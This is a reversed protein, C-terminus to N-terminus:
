SRGSTVTRAREAPVRPSSSDGPQWRRWAVGEHGFEFTEPHLMEALIELTEVLRPGPRNFYQNGDAVCVADTRVATISDFGPIELLLSAEGLTRDLSFGCPFVAVVDPNAQAVADRALWSSHRGAEGFLNDGGAMTVLEPIWNGAAMPPALWEITAVRPRLLVASADAIATMRASLRATLAAGRRPCGLASAVREMDAFAEPVTSAGLVVLEASSAGSALAARVDGLSVACVECHVQTVVHTPELSHLLEADVRYVSVAEALREEVGAHIERSSGSPDIWSATCVPLDIVEPPYDCEHSRGVLADAFGLSAVIETASPLLSVIRPATV